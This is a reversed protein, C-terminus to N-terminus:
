WELRVRITGTGLPALKAFADDSLDIIWGNVFPGRDDIVVTVTKGNALNTVRVRTGKPLTKHAAVMGERYYWSSTGVQTNPPRTGVLVVRDVPERVIRETLVQRGAVKGDEKRVRLVRVREGLRGARAVKRTGQVLDDTRRYRTAFSLAKRQTVRSYTVRVVRVTDGDDLPTTVAPRVEDHKKLIVGLSDLLYGVDPANTILRKSRGDVRLRVSIARRFEIVTGEEIRAGRSPRLFSGRNARLNIQGLVDDVTQGIVHVTRPAGNLVLTIEKAHQVEVRMGDALAAGPAPRVRDHREMGVGEAELLDQVTGALTSLTERRGDVVLTVEKDMRLYAGLGALLV